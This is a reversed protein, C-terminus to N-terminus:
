LGFIHDMGDAGNPAAAIVSFFIQQATTIAGTQRQRQFVVALADGKGQDGGAVVTKGLVFCELDGDAFEACKQQLLLHFDKQHDKVVGRELQRFFQKLPHGTVDVLM